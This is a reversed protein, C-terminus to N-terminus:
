FYLNLANTSDHYLSVAIAICILFLLLVIIVKLRIGFIVKGKPVCLLGLVIFQMLFIPWVAWDAM